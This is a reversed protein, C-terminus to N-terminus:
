RKFQLIVAAAGVLIGAAAMAATIILLLTFRKAQLEIVKAIRRQHEDTTLRLDRTATAQHESSEGLHTISREFSQLSNALNADNESAMELRRQVGALAETQGRAIRPLEGVAEAVQQTRATGTEVQAAIASLLQVQQQSIGPLDSLSQTLQTIGGAIQESREQQAKMHGHMADMLELLRDYGEQLRGLAYERRPRRVVGPESAEPTPDDDPEIDPPPTPVANRPEEPPTQAKPKKRALGQFWERVRLWIGPEPM